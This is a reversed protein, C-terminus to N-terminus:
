STTYHQSRHFPKGEYDRDAVCQTECRRQAIPDDLRWSTEVSIGGRTYSIPRPRLTLVRNEVDISEVLIEGEGMDFHQHLLTVGFRQLAGHRALVERLEAFCAEDNPGVPSVDYIDPLKPLPTMQAQSTTM